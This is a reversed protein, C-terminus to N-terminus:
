VDSPAHQRTNLPACGPVPRVRVLRLGGACDGGEGKTEPRTKRVTKDEASARYDSGNITGAHAGDALDFGRDALKGALLQQGETIPEGLEVGGCPVLLELLIDGGSM